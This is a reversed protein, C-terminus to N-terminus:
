NNWSSSKERPEVPEGSFLVTHEKQMRDLEVILENHDFESPASAFKEMLLNRQFDPEAYYLHLQVALSQAEKLSQPLAILTLEFDRWFQM